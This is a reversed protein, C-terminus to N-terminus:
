LFSLEYVAQGEQRLLPRLPTNFAPPKFANIVKFRDLADTLELCFKSHPLLSLSLQFSLTKTFITLKTSSTGLRYQTESTSLHDPM